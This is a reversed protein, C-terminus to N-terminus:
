GNNDATINGGNLVPPASDHPRALQIINDARPPLISFWETAETETCFANLYHRRCVAVSNGMEDAVVSINKVIKHRHTGFGHRLGDHSLKVGSVRTIAANIHPSQNAPLGFWRAGAM